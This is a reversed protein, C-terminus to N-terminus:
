LLKIISTKLIFNLISDDVKYITYFFLQMTNVKAPPTRKEKEKIMCYFSDLM